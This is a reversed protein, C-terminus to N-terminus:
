EGLLTILTTALKDIDDITNYKSFSIRVSEKLLSSQTGYLAELVHSPEINGATCASGSSISIGALDLRMLLQENLQGPFAINLVYPLNDQEQNIFLDVSALKELLSQRLHQVHNLNSEWFALSEEFATAMAAISALNETSARRKDEQNGGLLLRHLRNTNTYLFGVGKPGHFKHGSASLLDIGLEEPHIPVKGVTQVADVHFVAQHHSLVQGIDAIPLLYGTENNAYMASVLITDPRLADKFQQATYRSSVPKLYTVEFGHERELMELPHLVSHHEIATTVIHKGKDQNALAYGILALNNAETGGSTLIIRNPSTLLATAVTQRAQRLVQSAKRGHSHLSSPNGYTTQSVSLLTQIAADSMPTTAANDLYIM